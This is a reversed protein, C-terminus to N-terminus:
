PASVIATLNSIVVTEEEGGTSATFGLYAAPPLSVRGSFLEFTDITVTMVGNVVTVVYTHATGGPSAFEDPTYDTSLQTNLAGNVFTWPNEWLAAAGQGVAMYPVTVPDFPEGPVSGITSGTSLNGDQFTDFGLVFGPIGLAGIGEGVGGITSTTAGQSPDALVMTFGDAPIANKAASVTVTFTVSFNATSILNPWYVSAEENGKDNVLLITCATNNQSTVTGNLVWKSTTNCLGDGATPNGISGLSGVFLGATSSTLPNTGAIPTSGDSTSTVVVYFIGTSATAPANELILSSTTAGVVTAGALAGTGAGNSLPVPQITTPAFWFWQYAPICGTCTATTSFSALTNTAVFDTQPEATIQLLIGAGVALTVRSSVAQGFPNTVVVFYNDGDNSQQTASAPVTYTSSTGNTTIPEGATPVTLQNSTFPVRYWQYKLPGPGSATVSFIATGGVTATTGVPQIIISPPVATDTASVQLEAANSTLTTGTCDPDTITVYYFTGNNATTLAPTTYSSSTAGNVPAGGSTSASTNTFWQYALTGTGTAGVSFTATQTVFVSAPAPQTTITLTTPAVVNLTVTNTSVSGAANTATCFYTGNNASTVGPLTLTPSTNGSLAGGSWTWLYSTAFNAAMSLSPVNSTNSCANKSVPQLTIVPKSITVTTSASVSPEDASTATITYTGAVNPSTWVGAATISGGTATWTLNDTAGNAVTASFTQQGPAITTNAPTVSMITVSTPTATFTRAVSNGGTGTVTLTYTTAATVAPTTYSGGSVASSTINSSGAGTSGIVATGGSFTPVLTITGGFPPTATSGVLSTAVPTSNIATFTTTATAAAFNGSAAQSATLTVTGAVTPTVQSGMITARNNLVTYTVAGSSASTASVTFATGVTQQGINAFTLIPVEAAVAFTTTATSAAFNGSAAQSASLVVTGTGTLTVTNGSITAPGSVVTYTVAGSSASTASVTFPVNGFTQSAIAAFSLTPVEVAVAFSTTTTAAAFNGNAVQSASLM